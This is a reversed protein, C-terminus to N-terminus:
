NYKSVWWLLIAASSCSEWAFGGGGHSHHLQISSGKLFYSLFIPNLPCDWRPPDLQIIPYFYVHIEKLFCIFIPYTPCDWTTFYTCQVTCYQLIWFSDEVTGFTCYDVKRSIVHFTAPFVHYLASSKMCYCTKVRYKMNYRPFKSQKELPTVLLLLWFLHKGSKLLSYIRLFWRLKELRFTFVCMKDNNRFFYINKSMWDKAPVGVLLQTFILM